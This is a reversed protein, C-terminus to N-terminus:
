KQKKNMKQQKRNQNKKAFKSLKQKKLCQKRQKIWWKQKQSM